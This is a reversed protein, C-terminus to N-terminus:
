RKIILKIVQKIRLDFFLLNKFVSDDRILNFVLSQYYRKLRNELLDSDFFSNKKNAHIVIRYISKLSKVTEVTIGNKEIFREIFLNADSESLYPLANKLYNLRIQHVKEERRDDTKTVQVGHIRYKYLIDPINVLQCYFVARSWLEYDEAPFADQNYYLNYKLFSEKRFVSTAHLVPSYFLMTIKVQEPNSERIWVQTEQGFMELACSCLDIDPHNDLFYTQVELRSPLSIDDGDMRAIYEGKAMRLGVNLNNALGLNSENLHYIIRKDLYSRAIVATNDTSFDDLVILEFNTFTQNLISEIAEAVYDQVNYVPMLISVKPHNFESKNM